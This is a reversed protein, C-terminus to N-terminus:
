GFYKQMLSKKLMELEALQQQVAFKSKDAQQAFRSFEKQVSLPPLKVVAADFDAKKIHEMTPKFGHANKFAQRLAEETAYVFYIKDVDMKDFVVKFIHQNLWAAEGTWVYAELHTAWSVLVDGSHVLYKDALEGSYYNYSADPNNLNQIRIIPLGRDEWQDPKFAYGNLYTAIDGMRTPTTQALETLEVFRAKVLEDLDALMKRCLDIGESVKDLTAAIRRQTPLDPLVLEVKNLEKASLHKVTVFPTKAEIEKLIPNMQYFLYGTDVSESPIIKCVRQNLYAHGGQWYAINFDGDMGILIDGNEVYYNANCTETTFTDSYGRIVDRIRVLPIGETASFLSSDFAYGYQIACIDTLRAM